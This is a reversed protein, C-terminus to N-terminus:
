LVNKSFKIELDGDNDYSYRIMKVKTKNIIFDEYKKVVLAFENSVKLDLVDIFEVPQYNESKRLDQISRVLDRIKGEEALDKSITTDLVIDKGFIVEKVNVEEKLIDIYEKELKTNITLTQLPQRVKIGVKSRKEHTISVIKRLSNMQELISDDRPLKKTWNKIHVSEDRNELNQYIYESSFPSIPAIVKCFEELVFKLTHRAVAGEENDERIVDRSRRLYWTSLDDVFDLIPEVARDLRYEEFGKEVKERLVDLTSVIYRDLLNGSGKKHPLHSYTKYFIFTNYLRSYVKKYIEELGKTEFDMDGGRVVPSDLLYHRFADAGYKDILEVPDDYNKLKKSMKRGGKARVLGTTIVNKYSSVGFVGVSLALMSNFWGRTQDLAEAIFDAPFGIRKEPDFNKSISLSPYGNSGYPMSGSEFWCDFVEKINKYEIGEEDYLTIEDIYPRHLDIELDENRKLSVFPVEVIKTNTVNIYNSSAFKEATEIDKPSFGLSLLLANKIIVRHSFVCITEGEYKQEMDELFDIIRKYREIKSESNKNLKKSLDSGLEELRKRLEKLDINGVDLDWERVRDDKIIKIGLGETALKATDMVRDFPSSIIITPNIKKLKDRLNKAQNIGENTLNKNNDGDFVEEVNSEARGHRIFYYKNKHKMKSVMEKISSVVMIKSSQENKWVPIPAGWYRSRSVAWDPSTAIWNGFRGDRIHSPVWNIKKNESVMKDRYKPVEVFWSSTAYNLLPTDCRWCLPYNHKINEWKYLRSLSELKSIIKMDLSPPNGKEKVLLGAFEGLEKIFKGEKDVHHKIPLNEKQALDNDESGYAPALHVIGTGSEGSVYDANYIQFINEEDGKYLYNFLPKYKKGLLKKGKLHEVIEGDPILDEVRDKHLYYFKNDKKVKVYDEDKNVACAVNGFLTWPTTTWAIIEANEDLLPFTIYVSKDEIEQYGLSVENNSVTTSCRPCLHISKVGERVLEKKYLSSFINWVSETYSTTMTKYDNDMDVWRGLRKIIKRWDNAYRLVAERAKKNFKEIGFEEIERKNSIGLEKEIEFELPLGHCDWGWRRDNSYGQMTKYRPIADKITSQLLHGHHPLGTAFPPGDYFVFRKKGFIKEKIKKIFSNSKAGSESKKFSNNKDWYNLVWVDRDRISLQNDNM